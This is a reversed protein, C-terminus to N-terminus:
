HGRGASAMGGGSGGWNRLCHRFLGLWFFQGVPVGARVKSLVAQALKNREKATAADFRSGGVAHTQGVM